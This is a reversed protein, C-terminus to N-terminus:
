AGQGESLRIFHASLDEAIRAPDSSPIIEGALRRYAQHVAEKTVPADGADLMAILFQQHRPELAEFSQKMAKTPERIERQVAIPVLEANGQVTESKKKIEVLGHHVFRRIREPTFHTDEVISRANEKILRKSSDDLAAAKAHRYLILVKEPVTLKAADVIVEGIRPFQEAMGQLHMRELAIHLPAPRSTWLFWHNSDLARLISDLDAAWAQAIDPRYETSGFADDAIFIQPRDKRLVQLFDDPKRCEFCEWGDGLKGLGVLRAITTKGMEPPGTIVAFSHKALTALTDSYSKTPVFVRALESAREISLTSRELIPKEIVSALLERLDRLGLIQPFAVRINPAADLMACQDAGGWVFVSSNPMVRKLIEAIEKRQHPSVPANTMLVYSKIGKMGRSAFRSKISSCEASVAKKLNAYPAAGAANAEEVFKAQFLFPGQTLVGKIPIELSGDLYADRGLDSHGGWAEVGVGFQAKLLSQCLWEFQYWGLDDLRYRIM